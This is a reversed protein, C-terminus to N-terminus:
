KTGATYGNDRCWTRVEGLDKQRQKLMGPLTKRFELRHKLYTAIEDHGAKEANDVRLQLRAVSGRTASDGGLRALARDIRRDIKPVRKCLAEAGDGTPAAAPATAAPATAPAASPTTGAASASGAAQAAGATGTLVVTAALGVLLVRARRREFM